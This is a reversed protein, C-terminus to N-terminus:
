KKELVVKEKEMREEAERLEKKASKHLYSLKSVVMYSLVIAVRKKDPDQPMGRHIASQNSLILDGKKGTCHNVQKEDYLPMDTIHNKSIFLNRLLNRYVHGSFRQSRKVLSYPGYSLDPVDTLYIFAKYIVPQLADVHYSRTNEIGKNIYTHSRTKVVRQGSTSDLIKQILSDDIEGIEPIAKDAHFVDIMGSDSNAGKGAGRINVFAGSELGTPSDYPAVLLEAKERIADCTAPALFNPLRIIGEKKLNQALERVRPDPDHRDFFHLTNILDQGLLSLINKVASALKSM